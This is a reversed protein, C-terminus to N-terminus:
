NQSPPIPEARRAPVSASDARPSREVFTVGAETVLIQSEIVEDSELDCPMSQCLYWAGGGWAYGRSKLWQRLEFGNFWTGQTRWLRLTLRDLDVKIWAIRM